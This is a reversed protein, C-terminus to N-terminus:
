EAYLRIPRCRDLWTRNQNEQDQEPQRALWQIVAQRLAEPSEPPNAVWADFVDRNGLLKLTPEHEWREPYERRITAAICLGTLVPQFSDRDNLVLECGGCSENAYRSAQPTFRRPVFRIGPLRLRNLQRAIRSGDMWPAGIVEFPMDTGRGVSVNTFEIMAAAPYLFAQNLQRLNPSPDIWPLGTQDFTKSRSWNAMPIVQLDIELGSERAYLRALEGITLGHRIPISLMGTFSRREADLLPGEVHVGDLPNPRDLVIFKIGRKAAAQMALFMTSPYTYYRTGVDQIDFVLCDVGDLQRDTPQRSAGYLSYIPLRTLPDVGDTVNAQDLVGQMGHEPSFLAVLNVNESANMLRINARGHRDVGTHNTILGIRLEKLARFDNEALVDLGTLVTPEAAALEDGIRGPAAMTQPQAMTQPSTTAADPTPADGNPGDDRNSFEDLADCALQGIQAATRNITGKGDPHLRNALVIYFLDRAPDIWVVTGTFGGHGFAADSLGAARNSSYVSQIDWGCSRRGGSTEVPATMRRYADDTLIRVGNWQGGHLMMRCYIALDQATSFLGAHGAVGGLRAARPDHVQGMLMQGDRLETAACRPWEAPPPNFTTRNMGLPEFIHRRSFEDLSQGSVTQVVRGLLLYGVDSYRFTDGPPTKPLLQEIRQWAVEPGDRYDSLANDAILGSTHTLLHRLTIDRQRGENFAPLYTSLPADLQLDGKGALIMISTATAIPKTLSALDFLTDPRTPAVEPVVSRNGWARLYVLGDRRGVAVVMGATEGREIADLALPEIQQLPAPALGLRAPAIVPCPEAATTPPHSEQTVAPCTRATLIFFLIFSFTGRSFPGAM